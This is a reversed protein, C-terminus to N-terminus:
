KRHILSGFCFLYRILLCGALNSMQHTRQPLSIGGDAIVSHRKEAGSHLSHCPDCLLCLQDNTEAGLSEYGTFRRDKKNNNGCGTMMSARLMCAGPSLWYSLLM